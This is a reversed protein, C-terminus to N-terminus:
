HHKKPCDLQLFPFGGDARKKRSSSWLSIWMMPPHVAM